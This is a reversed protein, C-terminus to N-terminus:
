ITCLQWEDHLHSNSTEKPSWLLFSRRQPGEVHTTSLHKAKLLVETRVRFALDLPHEQNPSRLLRCNLFVTDDGEMMELHRKAASFAMFGSLHLVTGEASIPGYLALSSQFQKPQYLALKLDLLVKSPDAQLTEDRCFSPIEGGVTFFFPSEDVPDPVVEVVDSASESAAHDESPPEVEESLPDPDGETVGVVEPARAKAKSKPRLFPSAAPRKLPMRKSKPKCVLAAPKKRPPPTPPVVGKPPIRKPYYIGVSYESIPPPTSFKARIEAFKDSDEVRRKKGGGRLGLFAAGSIPVSQLVVVSGSTLGWHAPHEDDLPIYNGSPAHCRM